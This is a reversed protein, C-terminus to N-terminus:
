KILENVIDLDHNADEANDPEAGNLPTMENEAISILVVMEKETVSTM